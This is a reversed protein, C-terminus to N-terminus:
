TGALLLVLQVDRPSKLRFDDELSTGEHVLRSYHSFKIFEFLRAFRQQFKTCRSIYIYRHM